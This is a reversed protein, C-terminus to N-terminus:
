MVRDLEMRGIASMFKRGCLSYMLVGLIVESLTDETSVFFQLWFLILVQGQPLLPNGFSVLSGGLISLLPNWLGRCASSCTQERLTVVALLLSLNRSWGATPPPRELVVELTTQKLKKAARAERKLENVSRAVPKHESSRLQHTIFKEACNYILSECCCSCNGTGGVVILRRNMLM